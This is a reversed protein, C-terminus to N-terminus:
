LKQIAKIEFSLVENPRISSNGCKGYALYSPIYFLSTEGIKMLKLAQNWGEIVSGQTNRVDVFVTFPKARSYSSDFPDSDNFTPANLYKGLYHVSVMDGSQIAAGTGEELVFYHIGTETVQMNTTDIDNVRFYRKIVKIDEIKQLAIEEQTAICPNRFPDEEKCSSFFVLAAFLFSAKALWTSIKTKHHILNM